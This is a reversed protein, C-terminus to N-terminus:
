NIKVREYKANVGILATNRSISLLIILITKYKNKAGSWNQVSYHKRIISYEVLYLPVQLFQAGSWKEEFKLM